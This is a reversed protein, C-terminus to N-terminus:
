SRQEFVTILVLVRNAHEPAVVLEVQDNPMPECYFSRGESILVIAVLEAVQRSCQCHTLSQPALRIGM